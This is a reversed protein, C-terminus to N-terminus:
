QFSKFLVVKSKRSNKITLVHFYTHIFRPLTLIKEWILNYILLDVYFVWTEYYRDTSVMNIVINIHNELSINYQVSSLIVYCYFVKTIVFSKM